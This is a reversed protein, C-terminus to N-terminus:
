SKECKNKVELLEKSLHHLLFAIVFLYDSGKAYSLHLFTM